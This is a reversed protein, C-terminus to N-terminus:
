FNVQFNALANYTKYHRLLFAYEEGRLWRDNWPFHLLGKHDFHYKMQHEEKMYNNLIRAEHTYQKLIPDYEPYLIADTFMPLTKYLPLMNLDSM